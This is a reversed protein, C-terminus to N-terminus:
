SASCTGARRHRAGGAAFTARAAEVLAIVETPTPDVSLTGAEIRGADLLNGVLRQMRDAEIEVIRFFQM